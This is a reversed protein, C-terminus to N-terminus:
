RMREWFYGRELLAMTRCHGPHGAWALDHCEKFLHRRHGSSKPIYIKNGYFLFGNRLHFKRTKGEKLLKLILKEQTDEEVSSLLRDQMEMFMNVRRRTRDFRYKEELAALQAKRSLADVVFNLKGPKYELTM